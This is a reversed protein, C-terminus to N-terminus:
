AAILRRCRRLAERLLSDLALEGSIEARVAAVVTAAETKSFGAQVLAAKAEVDISVRDLSAPASVHAHPEHKRTVVLADPAKGTLTILGRHIAAHCSDCILTLNSPDHTGGHERAIIHHLEIHNASRCGPVTCKGGDRRWVFQRIRPPVDQKARGPREADLSGINRADCRARAVESADLAFRRGASDRWGQDCQECIITAIEYKARRANADGDAAPAHELFAGFVMAIFQDESLEGGIAARAKARAERELGFTSPRIEEYRLTRLELDPQKPDMPLDGKAHGSVADEIQHVNMNACQALWLQENAPTAVRLLARAASFPLKGSALAREIAPLADLALAVRLREQANRVGYGLFREMYDTMSVCGLQRWIQVRYAARMWRAEEADLAARQRALGQLTRDIERWDDCSVNNNMSSKCIMAASREHEVM